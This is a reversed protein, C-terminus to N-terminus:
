MMIRSNLAAADLTCYAEQQPQQCTRPRLDSPPVLRCGTASSRVFSRSITPLQLHRTCLLDPRRRTAAPSSDNGACARGIDPTPGLTCFGTPRRSLVGRERQLSCAARVQWVHNYFMTEAPRPQHFLGLPAFSQTASLAQFIGHAQGPCVHAKASLGYHVGIPTNQPRKALSPGEYMEASMTRPTRGERRLPM